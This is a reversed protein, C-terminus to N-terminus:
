RFGHEHTRPHRVAAPDHIAPVLLRPGIYVAIDTNLILLPQELVGLWLLLNNIVGHNGLLGMWAYVRLLFSIWFPLVILLLLLGRM